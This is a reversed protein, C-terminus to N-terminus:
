EDLKQVSPPPEAKVSVYMRVFKSPPRNPYPASEELVVFCVRLWQLASEVEEPLGELRIKVM